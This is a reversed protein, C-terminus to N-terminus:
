HSTRTPEYSAQTPPHTPKNPHTMLKLRVFMQLETLHQETSSSLPINFISIRRYMLVQLMRVTLRACAYTVIIPFKVSIQMPSILSYTSM